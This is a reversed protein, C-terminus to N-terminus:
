SGERIEQMSMHRGVGVVGNEDLTWVPPEVYLSGNADSSLELYPLANPSFAVRGSDVGAM